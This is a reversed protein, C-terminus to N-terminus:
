RSLGGGWGNRSKERGIAFDVKEFADKLFYESLKNRAILAEAEQDLDNYNNSRAIIDIINKILLQATEPPLNKYRKSASELTIKLTDEAQRSYTLGM